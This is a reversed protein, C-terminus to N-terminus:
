RTPPAAPLDYEECLRESKEELSAQLKRDYELLRTRLSNVTRLMRKEDALARFESGYDAWFVHDLFHTALREIQNVVHEGVLRPFEDSAFFAAHTGASSEETFERVRQSVLERFGDNDLLRAHATSCAQTLEPLYQNDHKGTSVLFEKDAKRFDRYIHRANPPLYFELRKIYEPQLNHHRWTVNKAELFQIELPLADILRNLVEHVWAQVRPSGSKIPM